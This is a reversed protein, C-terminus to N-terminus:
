FRSRWRLVRSYSAREREALDGRGKHRVVALPEEPMNNELLTELRDQDNNLDMHCPSHERLWSRAEYVVQRRVQFM